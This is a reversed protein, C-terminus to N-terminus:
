GVVSIGREDIEGPIIFVLVDFIEVSKFVRWLCTSLYAWRKFFVLFWIFSRSISNFLIEGRFLARDSNDFFIRFASSSEFSDFLIDSDFIM